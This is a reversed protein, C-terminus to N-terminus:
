EMSEGLLRYYSFPDLVIINRDPLKDELAEVCRVLYDPTSWVCRISLFTACGVRDRATIDKIWGEACKEPDNRDFRNSIEDIVSGNDAIHPVTKVGTGHGLQNSVLTGAGTTAFQTVYYESLESLACFDWIDPAVSIDSMTFYKKHHAAVVPWDAELVRSPNYWGAGGVNSVFYDNETATQYFYEIIDPYQQLMNPNYSWALPIEGRGGANWNKVMKTYLSGTSDYDGMVILLYVNKESNDLKIEDPRNQQLPTQLPYSEHFTVNAAKEAVPNWYCGYPTFLYAFEWEVQTGKYRSTFSEDNGSDSYKWSPFFGSIETLTDSGRVKKQKELIMLYTERDLGMRQGMDDKPLEDEWPSLDFVFAKHEVALDRPLIYHLEGRERARAADEYSCMYHTSCLGKELYERIAWRYADNKASGTESGDFKDVLSVVNISEPLISKYTQYMEPTMVIGDEVGAIMPAVNVTAPVKVDWLVVTTIYPAGLEILAKLNKIAVRDVNQLWRGEQSMIDLVTTTPEVDKTTVYIKTDSYRNFLGQLTVAALGTDYKEEGSGGIAFMYMQSYEGKYDLAEPVKGAREGSLYNEILYAAALRTGFDNSGIVVVKKNVVRVAFEGAKLTQLVQESEARNTRGVLIETEIEPFDAKGDRSIWDSGITVEEVGISEKLARAVDVAAVTVTNDAIDPRIVQYAPAGDETLLALLPGLDEEEGDSCSLLLMAAVTLLMCLVGVWIRKNWKKM